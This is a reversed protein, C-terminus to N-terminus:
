LSARVVDELAQDVLGLEHLKRLEDKNVKQQLDGGSGEQFHTLFFKIFPGNSDRQQIKAECDKLADHIDQYEIAWGEEMTGMVRQVTELLEQQTFRFAPVYVAKNKYQSLAEEPLTLVAAIAQGTYTLGSASVMGVKGDWITAKRNEVDIGWFGSKINMDLFPGVTISIWSAVGLESILDRIRKKDQLLQNQEVLRHAFPDPGYEAPLIYPTGVKAAARIASEQISIMHPLPPMLVVVDQGQFANALFSEDQLDGSKITVGSPFKSTAELRQVVTISHVGQTLLAKVTPRGVNGSAGIIAIKRGEKQPAM